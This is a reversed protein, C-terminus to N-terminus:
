QSGAEGTPDVIQLPTPPHTTFVGLGDIHLAMSDSLRHCPIWSTCGPDDLHLEIPTTSAPAPRLVYDSGVCERLFAQIADCESDTDGDTVALIRDRDLSPPAPLRGMASLPANWQILRLAEEATLYAVDTFEPFAHIERKLREHVDVDFIPVGGGNRTLFLPPSYAHLELDGEAMARFAPIWIVHEGVRRLSVWGGRECHPTGCCGCLIVQVPDETFDVGDVNNVLCFAGSHVSHTSLMGMGASRFDFTIDCLNFSDVTWM